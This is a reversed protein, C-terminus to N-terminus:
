YIKGKSPDHYFKCNAGRLCVGNEFDRCPFKYKNHKKEDDLPKPSRSNERSKIPVPSQSSRQRWEMGNTPNTSTTNGKGTNGTNGKDANGTNGKGINGTNGTNGTTSTKDANGITSTTSTNSAKDVNSAKDANGVPPPSTKNRNNVRKMTPRPAPKTELTKKEHAVPTFANASTNSTSSNTSPTKQLPVPQLAKQQPSSYSAKEPVKSSSSINMTDIQLQRSKDPLSSNGTIIPAPSSQPLSTPTLVSPSVQKTPLHMTSLDNLPYLTSNDMNRFNQYSNERSTSKYFSDLNSEDGLYMMSRARSMPMDIDRDHTDFLSSPYGRSSYYRNDYNPIREMSAVRHPTVHNSYIDGRYGPDNYDNMMLGSENMTQHPHSLSSSRLSNYSARSYPNNSYTNSNTTNGLSNMNSSVSQTRIWHDDMLPNQQYSRGVGVGGDRFISLSSYSQNGYSPHLDPTFDDDHYYSNHRHSSRDYPAPSRTRPSLLSDGNRYSRPYIGNSISPMSEIFLGDDYFEGTQSPMQHPSQLPMGSNYGDGIGSSYDISSRNPLTNYSNGEVFSYGDQTMHKFNSFSGKNYSRRYSDNIMGKNLQSSFSNNLDDQLIDDDCYPDKFLDEMQFSSSGERGNMNSNLNLTSAPYMTKYDLDNDLFQGNALSPQSVIESVTHNMGGSEGISAEELSSIPM